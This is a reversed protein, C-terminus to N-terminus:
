RIFGASSSVILTLGILSVVTLDFVVHNLVYREGKRIWKHLGLAHRTLLAFSGLAITIAAFSAIWPMPQSVLASLKSVVQTPPDAVATQLSQSAPLDTSAAPKTTKKAPTKTSTSTQHATPASTQTQAAQVSSSPTSAHATSAVVLPSAYMAVVVTQEGDGVYNSSNAFGFGVDTFGANLMNARHEASDMWGQVTDSSTLFGYALNEGATKYSYGANSIFVWPPNGDPTNHSWYNRKVMDNAKAQAAQDLKSNLHLSTKGNTTRDHNTASLLGSVSMSTAYALVGHKQHPQWFTSFIIGLSLILALPLYPSYVKLFHRTHKQHRGHRKHERARSAVMFM